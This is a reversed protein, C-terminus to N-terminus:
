GPLTQWFECFKNESSSLKLQIKKFIFKCNTCVKLTFYKATILNQSKWHIVPILNGPRRM